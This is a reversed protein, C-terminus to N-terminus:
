SFFHLVVAFLFVRFGTQIIQEGHPRGHVPRGHPHPRTSQKRHHLVVEIYPHFVPQLLLYSVLAPQTGTSVIVPLGRLFLSSQFSFGVPHRARIAAM